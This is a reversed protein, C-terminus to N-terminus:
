RNSWIHDDLAKSVATCFADQAICEVEIIGSGEDDVWLHQQTEPHLPCAAAHFGGGPLTCREMHTRPPVYM